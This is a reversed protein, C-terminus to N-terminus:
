LKNIWDMDRLGQFSKFGVLEHQTKSLLKSIAVVTHVGETLRGADEQIHACRFQCHYICSNVALM